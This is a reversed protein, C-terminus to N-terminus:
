RERLSDELPAEDLDQPRADSGQAVADPREVLVVTPTIHLLAAAAIVAAARFIPTM